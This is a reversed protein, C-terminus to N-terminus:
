NQVKQYAIREDGNELYIIGCRTFGNKVLSRQMPINDRHTDIKLNGCRSICYEFCHSAIGRRHASVAIRHIVGYSQDNLWNGDYIHLYTPDTGIFFCFVGVIQNTDTCVYLRSLRIDEQLVSPAPYGDNWQLMNGNQRMYQRAQEYIDLIAPLDQESAPRIILNECM